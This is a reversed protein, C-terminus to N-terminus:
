IIYDMQQKGLFLFTGVFDYRFRETAAKNPTFKSSRFATLIVTTRDPSKLPNWQDSSDLCIFSLEHELKSPIIPVKTDHSRVGRWGVILKSMETM